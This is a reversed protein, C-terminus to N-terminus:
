TISFTVGDLNIDETALITTASTLTVAGTTAITVEVNAVTTFGSIILPVSKKPRHPADLTFLTQGTVITKGVKVKLVGRLRVAGVDETRSQAEYFAGGAQEVEGLSEFATWPGPEVAKVEAKAQAKAEAVGTARKEAEEAVEVPVEPEFVNGGFAM